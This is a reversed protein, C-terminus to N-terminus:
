VGVDRASPLGCAEAGPGNSIIGAAGVVGCGTSGTAGGGKGRTGLLM